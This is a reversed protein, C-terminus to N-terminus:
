QALKSNLVRHRISDRREEVYKAVEEAERKARAIEDQLQKKDPLTKEPRNKLRKGDFRGEQKEISACM